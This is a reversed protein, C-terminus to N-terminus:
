RALRPSREFRFVGAPDFRDAISRLRDAISAPYATDPSVSGDLFSVAAQYGGIAEAAQNVRQLAQEVAVDDHRPSAGVAHLLFPEPPTTLAGDRSPATSAIHRLEVMQLGDREGIRASALLDMARGAADPGLWRATGRSPVATPPDLHITALRAADATGTTDVHPPAVALVAERMRRLDSKGSPSAYALHVVPKGLLDPPFPGDDPLHLLSITSTVGPGIAPLIASWARVLPSAQHAPWLLYGAWLDPIAVLDIILEVAIGVPAGGRFAWIAERNHPDPSEDSAHHITGMGDVFTVARLASAAFGHPRTLWGVGGGFTYGAVGVSASTGGLGLLGQREALPQLTSWSVGVGVRATRSEPDISVDQLLSTDVLITDDGLTQAAGHGTAQVAITKGRSRALRVVVSMDAASIPRAVFAPAQLAYANHPHTAHEYASDGPMALALNPAETRLATALDPQDSPPMTM